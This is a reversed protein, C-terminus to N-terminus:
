APSSSLICLAWDLKFKLYIVLLKRAYTYGLHKSEGFFITSHHMTLFLPLSDNSKGSRMEM